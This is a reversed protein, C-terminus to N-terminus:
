FDITTLHTKQAAEGNMSLGLKVDIFGHSPMATLDFQVKDAVLDGAMLRHAAYHDGIVPREFELSRNPLEFSFQFVPDSKMQNRVRYYLTLELRKERDFDLRDMRFGELIINDSLILSKRSANEPLVGPFVADLPSVSEANVHNGVLYLRSSPADLVKLNRRADPSFMARYAQNIAFLADKPVIYFAPHTDGAISELMEMRSISHAVNLSYSSFTSIRCRSNQCVYGPECDRYTLCLQTNEGSLLYIPESKNALEFYRQILATETFRDSISPTYNFYIFHASLCALVVLSIAPAYPMLENEGRAIRMLTTSSSTRSESSSAGKRSERWDVIQKQIAEAAGTFSILTLIVFVVCFVIVHGIYADFVTSSSSDWHMLPDTMVYRVIRFPELHFEYVAIGLCIFALIIM